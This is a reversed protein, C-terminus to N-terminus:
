IVFFVKRRFARGTRTRLMGGAIVYSLARKCPEKCQEPLLV